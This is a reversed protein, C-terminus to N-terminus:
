GCFWPGEHVMTGGMQPRCISCYGVNCRDCLVHREWDDTSGCKGCPKAAQWEPHWVACLSSCRGVMTVGQEQWPGVAASAADDRDEESLGM